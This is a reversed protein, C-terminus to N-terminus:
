RRSVEEGTTLLKDARNGLVADMVAAASDQMHPLVHAYVDETIGTSAHGLMESVVKVPVGNALSAHTTACHRLDHFRIVPVGAAKALRRLHWRLTQPHLPTGDERTFVLGSDVWAEGWAMREELQRRRHGRLAAVTEPGLGITRARNAKPTGEEVAYGVAVRGRRVCLRGADLDVDEWRLGAAESRRLGTALVLRFLGYLRDNEAIDLFRGMEQASWVQMEERRAQSPRVRKPLRVMPSRPLLGEEVADGLAKSLAVHVHAISSESLGGPSKRRGNARLEAYLRGIDSTTIDRLRLGGIHPLVYYTMQDRYARITAPKLRHLSPLWHGEVYAALTLKSPEVHAQDDFGALAEALAAEAERRLRYGGKSITRRGGERRPDPVMFQYTWTDGRKRITGKV